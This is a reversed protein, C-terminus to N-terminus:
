KEYVLEKVSTVMNKHILQVQNILMPSNDKPSTVDLAMLYYDGTEDVLFGVTRHVRAHIAEFRKRYYQLTQWGENSHIADVWNIEVARIEGM